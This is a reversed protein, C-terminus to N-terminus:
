PAMLIVPAAQCARTLPYRNYIIFGVSNLLIKGYRRSAGLSLALFALRNIDAFALAPVAQDKSPLEKSPM